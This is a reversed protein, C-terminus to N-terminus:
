RRAERSQEPTRVMIHVLEGHEDVRWLCISPSRRARATARARCKRLAAYLPALADYSALENADPGLAEGRAAPKAV